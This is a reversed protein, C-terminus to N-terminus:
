AAPFLLVAGSPGHLSPYWRLSGALRDTLPPWAGARRSPEPEFPDRSAPSRALPM